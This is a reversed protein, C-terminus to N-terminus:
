CWHDSLDRIRRLDKKLATIEAVLAARGKEADAVAVELGRVTAEFRSVTLHELKSGHWWATQTLARREDETFPEEPDPQDIGCRSCEAPAFTAGDIASRVWEHECLDLREVREVDDWIGGWGGPVVGGSIAASWECPAMWRLGNTMVGVAALSPPAGKWHIRYMGPQLADTERENM